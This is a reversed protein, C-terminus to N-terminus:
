SVADPGGVWRRVYGTHSPVGLLRGQERVLAPGDERAVCGM